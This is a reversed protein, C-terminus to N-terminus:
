AAFATACHVYWGFGRCDVCNAFGNFPKDGSTGMVPRPDRCRACSACRHATVEDAFDSTIKHVSILLAEVAMRRDILTVFAGAADADAVVMGFAPHTGCANFPFGM